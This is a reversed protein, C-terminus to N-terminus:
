TNLEKGLAVNTGFTALQQQTVYGYITNNNNNPQLSVNTASVLTAANQQLNDKNYEASPSERIDTICPSTHLSSLINSSVKTTPINVGNLSTTNITTTNSVPSNVIAQSTANNVHSEDPTALKGLSEICTYGNISTPPQQQSFSPQFLQKAASPQIYGDNTMTPFTSNFHPATSVNRDSANLISALLQSNHTVYGNYPQSTFNQVNENEKSNIEDNDEEEGEEEEECGSAPITNNSDISSLRKIQHHDHYPHNSNTTSSSNSSLEENTTELSPHEGIQEEKQHDNSSNTSSLSSLANSSGSHFNTILNHNEKHGYSVLCDNSRSIDSHFEKKTTSGLESGNRPNYDPVLGVPLVVKINKMNIIKNRIWCSIYAAFIFVIILALAYILAESIGSCTIIRKDNIWPSAFYFQRNDNHFIPVTKAEFFNEYENAELQCFDEDIPAGALIADKNMAVIERDVEEKEGVNVARVRLTYEKKSNLCPNNFRCSRGRVISVREYVTNSNEDKWTLAVVYFIHRGSPLDPQDWSIVGDKSSNLNRPGSPIGILTTFNIRRSPVSEEITHATVYVEYNSYSSLGTLNYSTQDISTTNKEFTQDPYKRWYISYHSLIGNNLDPPSWHIEASKSTVKNKIYRIHKPPSPAMQKTRVCNRDSIRGQKSSSYMFMNLCVKTYAPLDSITYNRYEKEERLLEVTIESTVCKDDLSAQCYTLNYGKLISACVSGSSWKVLVASENLANVELEMKMLESSVDGSCRAWQMGKNYHPYNASIALNLSRDKPETTFNTADKDLYKYSIPGRCQNPLEIKPLCWFVTYNLLEAVNPPPRWSLTYSSNHYVKAINNENLEYRSSASRYVRIVNHYISEGNDNASKIIFTQMSENKWALTLSSEKTKTSLMVDGNGNTENVIYHFGPGNHEHEPMQEWYLRLETDSSDIYFSGLPAEPARHPRESKTRFSIINEKSWFDDNNVANSKVRVKIWYLWFAYLNSIIINCTGNQCELDGMQPTQWNSNNDRIQIDYTLGKEIYYSIKLKELSLAISHSTINRQVIDVASPIVIKHNNITFTQINEGVDNTGKLTFVYKERMPLYDTVNCKLKHNKEDECNCRHISSDLRYELDFSTFIMNKPRTFSCEMYEYDYSICSFDTVNQPKTGVFLESEGIAHEGVKCQYRSNQEVANQIMLVATYSDIIKIKDSPQKIPWKTKEELFWIDSSLPKSLRCTINASGGILISLSEPKMEGPSKTSAAATMVGTYGSCTTLTWPQIAILFTVIFHFCSFSMQQPDMINLQM